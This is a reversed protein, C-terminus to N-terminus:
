RLAKEFLLVLVRDFKDVIVCCLAEVSALSPIAIGTLLAPDKGNPANRYFISNM